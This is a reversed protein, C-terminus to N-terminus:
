RVFLFLQGSTWRGRSLAWSELRAEVRKKLGTHRPKTWMNLPIISIIKLSMPTTHTSLIISPTRFHQVLLSSHLRTAFSTLRQRLQSSERPVYLSKYWPLGSNIGCLNSCVKRRVSLCLNHILGNSAGLSLVLVKCVDRIRFVFVLTGIRNSKPKNIWVYRQKTNDCKIIAVVCELSVLSTSNNNIKFGAM